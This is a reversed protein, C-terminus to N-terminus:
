SVNESIAILKAKKANYTYINDQLSSTAVFWIDSSFAPKTFIGATDADNITLTALSFTSVTATWPSSTSLIYHTDELALSRCYVKSLQVSSFYQIDLCNIAEPIDFELIKEPREPEDLSLIEAFMIFLRSGDSPQMLYLNKVLTSDLVKAKVETGKPV